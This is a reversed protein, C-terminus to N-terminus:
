SQKPLAAGAAFFSFLFVRGLIRKIKIELMRSFLFCGGWSEEQSPCDNQNTGRYWEVQTQFFAVREAGVLRKGKRPL